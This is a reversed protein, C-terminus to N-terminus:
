YRNKKIFLLFLLPFIVWALQFPDSTFLQKSFPTFLEQIEKKPLWSFILSTTMGVTLFSLIISQTLVIIKRGGISFTFFKRMALFVLFILIGFYIIKTSPSNPLFYSFIFIVYSIYVSLLLAGLKKRKVIFVLALSIAVFLVLLWIDGAYQKPIGLQILFDIM